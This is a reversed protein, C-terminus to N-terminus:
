LFESSLSAVFHNFVNKLEESNLNLEYIFFEVEIISGDIEKATYMKGEEAHEPKIMRGNMDVLVTQPESWRDEIVVEKTSKGVVEIIHLSRLEELYNRHIHAKIDSWTFKKLGHTIREIKEVARIRKKMPDLDVSNRLKQEFFRKGFDQRTQM